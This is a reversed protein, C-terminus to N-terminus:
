RYSLPNSEEAEQEDATLQDIVESAKGAEAKELEIKQQLPPVMVAVDPDGNDDMPQDKIDPAQTLQDQVPPMDGQQNHPLVQVAPEEGDDPMTISINITKGGSPQRQVFEKARM